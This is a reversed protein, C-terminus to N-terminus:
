IQPAWSACWGAAKVQKGPFIQCPGQKSGQAGQYLACTACTNGAPVGKAHSADETYKLTKAAPDSESLLPDAAAHGAIPLMTAWPSLAAALLSRKLLARRAQNVDSAM